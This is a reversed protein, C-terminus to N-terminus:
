ETLMIRVAGCNIKYSVSIDSVVENLSIKSDALEGCSKQDINSRRFQRLSSSSIM